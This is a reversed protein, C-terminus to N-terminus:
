TASSRQFAPPSAAAGRIVQLSAITTPLLHEAEALGEGTGLAYFVYRDGRHVAALSSACLVAPRTGLLGEQEEPGLRCAGPPLVVSHATRVDEYTQLLQLAPTHCLSPMYEHMAAYRVLVHQMQSLEKAMTRAAATSYTQPPALSAAIHGPLQLSLAAELARLRVYDLLALSLIRREVLAHAHEVCRHLNLTYREKREAHRELDQALAHWSLPTWSASALTHKHEPNQTLLPSLLATHVAPLLSEAQAIFVDVDEAFAWPTVRTCQEPDFRRPLRVLATGPPTYFAFSRSAAHHSLAWPMCAADSIRVSHFRVQPGHTAVAADLWVAALPGSVEGRVCVFRQTAHLRLGLQQDLIRVISYPDPSSQLEENVTAVRDLLAQKAEHEENSAPPISHVADNCTELMDAPPTGETWFDHWQITLAELCRHLAAHWPSDPHALQSVYLPEPASLILAVRLWLPYPTLSPQTSMPM